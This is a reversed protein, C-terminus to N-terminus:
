SGIPKFHKKFDGGKFDIALAGTPDNILLVSYVNKRRHDRKQRGVEEMPRLYFSYEKGVTYGLSVNHKNKVEQICTCTLM